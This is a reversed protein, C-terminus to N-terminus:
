DKQWHDALMAFDKLSVQGSADLDTRACWANALTCEAMLWQEMFHNLDALNVAHDGNFDPRSNIHFSRAIATLLSTSDTTDQTM